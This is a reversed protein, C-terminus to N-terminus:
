PQPDLAYKRDRSLMVGEISAPSNLWFLFVIVIVIFFKM